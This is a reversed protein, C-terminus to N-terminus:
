EERQTRAMPGAAARLRARPVSAPAQRELVSAREVSDTSHDPRREVRWLCSGDGMASCHREISRRARWGACGAALAVAHVNSVDFLRMKVPVWEMPLLLVLASVLVGAVVCMAVRPLEILRVPGTSMHRRESKGGPGMMQYERAASASGM